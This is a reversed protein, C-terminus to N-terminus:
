KYFEIYAVEVDVNPMSTGAQTEFKWHLNYLKTLHIGGPKLGQDNWNSDPKMSAFAVQQQTWTATAIVPFAWSNSCEFPATTSAKTVCPGCAATNGQEVAGWPSTQDDDINVIVKPTGVNSKIWFQVGTWLSADYPLVIGVVGSDIDNDDFITTSGDPLTYSTCTSFPVSDSGTPPVSQFDLGFGAGWTAEGGAQFDRYFLTQGNIQDSNTAPYPTGETPVCTGPPAGGDALVTIVNPESNPVTRDSFTYWYGGNPPLDNQM